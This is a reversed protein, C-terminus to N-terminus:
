IKYKWTYGGSTKQTGKCVKIICSGDINLEESAEKISAWEKIFEGSKTLQIIPKKHSNGINKRTEISAKKGTKSKSIKDKTEKSVVRGLCNKNGMRQKSFMDKTKESHTFGLIGGGGYTSNYGFECSNYYDIYAIEMADLVIKLKDLDETYKTKFVEEYQFNELGYKKIANGFKTTTKSTVNIHSNKRNNTSVTQGIYVKGSPSTYKYIIGQKM